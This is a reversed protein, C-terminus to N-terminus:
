IYLTRFKMYLLLVTKMWWPASPSRASAQGNSCANAPCPCARPRPASRNKQPLSCLPAHCRANPYLGQGGARARASSPSYAPLQAGANVAVRRTHSHTSAGGKATGSKAAEHPSSIQKRNLAGCPPVVCAALAKSCCAMPAPRIGLSSAPASIVAANVCHRSNNPPGRAADNSLCPPVLAGIKSSGPCPLLVLLPGQHM